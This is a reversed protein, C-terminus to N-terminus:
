RPLRTVSLVLTLDHGVTLTFFLVSGMDSESVKVESASSKESASRRSSLGLFLVLLADPSSLFPLVSSGCPQLAM